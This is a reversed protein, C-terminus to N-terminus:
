NFVSQYDQRAITPTQVPIMYLEFVPGDAVEFTYMGQPLLAGPPGSFILTFPQRPATKAEWEELRRVDVSTLTLEHRGEKVRFVKGVHPLFDDPSMTEIETRRHELIRAIPGVYSFSCS